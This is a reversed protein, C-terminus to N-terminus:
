TDSKESFLFHLSSLTCVLFTPSLIINDSNTFVLSPSLIINFTQDAKLQDLSCLHLIFPVGQSKYRSRRQINATIIVESSSISLHSSSILHLSPIFLHLSSSFVCFPLTKHIPSINDVHIIFRSISCLRLYSNSKTPSHSHLSICPLDFVFRPM